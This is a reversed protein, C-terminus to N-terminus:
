MFPLFEDKEDNEEEDDDKSQMQFLIESYFDPDYKELSPLFWVIFPLIFEIKYPIQRKIQIIRNLFEKDQYFGNQELFYLLIHPTSQYNIPLFIRELIEKKLEQLISQNKHRITLLHGIESTLKSYINARLSDYREITYICYSYDLPTIEKDNLKQAIAIANSYYNENNSNLIIDQIEMVKLSKELITQDFKHVKLLEM